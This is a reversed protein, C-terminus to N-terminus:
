GKRVGAGPPDGGVVHWGGLLVSDSFMYYRSTQYYAQIKVFFLIFDATLVKKLSKFNLNM